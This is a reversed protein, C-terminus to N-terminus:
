TSQPIFNIIGLTTSIVILDSHTNYLTAQQTSSSKKGMRRPLASMSIGMEREQGGSTELRAEM